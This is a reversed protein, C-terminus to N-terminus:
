GRDRPARDGTVPGHPMAPRYVNELPATENQEPRRKQVVRHHDVWQLRIFRVQELPTAGNSTRVSPGGRSTPGRTERSAHGNLIRHPTYRSTSPPHVAKRKM